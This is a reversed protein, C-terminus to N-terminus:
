FMQLVGSPLQTRRTLCIFISDRYGDEPIKDLNLKNETMLSITDTVYQALKELSSNFVVFYIKYWDM